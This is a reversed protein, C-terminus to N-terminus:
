DPGAVVTVNNPMDLFKRIVSNVKQPTLDLYIQERKWSLLYDNGYFEELSSAFILYGPNEMEEAAHFYLRKRAEEFETKTLGKTVLRACEADLLKVVKEVAEPHTGTYFALYGPHAGRMSSLGTYYALGHKDRITKFLTSNQGNLATQMVDLAFRDPHQNGCGPLGLMVVSQERPVKVKGQSKRSPFKPPPPSIKEYFKDSWITKGALKELEARIKGPDIDGAAGIVTKGPILCKERFFKMVDASTIKEISGIRGIRPNSYPHDKFILECLKSEAAFQPSLMRSKITELLNRREREFEKEPFKPERLVTQLVELAIKLKDRHCNIRFLLTNNGGSISFDIANDDLLASIDDESYKGAGTLLTSTLLRTIGATEPTEMISGGPMVICIDVLPLSSDVITIIRQGDPLQKREARDRPIFSKPIKKKAPKKEPEPLQEVLTAQNPDLYQKAVRQIDDPTLCSLDSLYKDVYDPDGFTLVCNGIIRALNSNTRLSRLHETVQQAIDRKLEAATIGKERILEIERFTEERLRELQPPSTVASIGFVGTFYPTYTFSSIDIALESATKLKACLRSSKNQGMIAALVDLAPIDPHSAEPIKYGLSLRALPDAFGCTSSRTCVQKPESPIAPEHLNGAPWDALRKELWSFVQGSDVAGTIVFFSRAPSYRRQYYEMMMERGVTAIKDQYGIIPHRAPHRLFLNQWMKETISSGPDDNYMSRERLIVNKEDTFTKAPFKPSRIVDALIDVATEAAAAPLKIYYVTCGFSTYANMDGGNRSVTASIKEGPYRSTGKFMMHELFHSLGCGLFEEEHISGTKVWAQVNVVPADFKERVFVQLGNSFAHTKIDGIKVETHKLSPTKDM